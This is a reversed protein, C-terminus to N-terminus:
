EAAAQGWRRPLTFAYLVTVTGASLVAWPFWEAPQWTQTSRAPSASPNVFEGASSQGAAYLTANEILLCEVGVIIGMIGVALFLSRWM